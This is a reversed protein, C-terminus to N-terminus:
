TAQSSTVPQNEASMAPSAASSFDNVLEGTGGIVFPVAYSKQTNIDVVGVSYPRILSVRYQKAVLDGPGVQYVIGADDTLVAYLTNGFGEVRLVKFPFTGTSQQAQLAQLSNKLTMAQIKRQAIAIQEGLVAIDAFNDTHGNEASVAGKEEGSTTTNAAEPMTQTQAMGEGSVGWLWTSCLFIFAWSYKRM